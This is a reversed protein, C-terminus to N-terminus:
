RACIMSKAGDTRAEDVWVISLLPGDVATRYVGERGKFEDLRSLAARRAVTTEQGIFERNM